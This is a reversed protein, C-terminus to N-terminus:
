DIDVVSGEISAIEDYGMLVKRSIRGKVLPNVKSTYTVIGDTTIDTNTAIDKSKFRIYRGNSVDVTGRLIKNYVVGSKSIIRFPEFVLQHTPDSERASRDMGVCLIREGTVRDIGNRFERMMRNVDSGRLAM